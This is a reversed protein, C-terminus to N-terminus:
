NKGRRRRKFKGEKFTYLSNMTSISAMVFFMFGMFMLYANGDSIFEFLLYLTAIVGAFGIMFDM